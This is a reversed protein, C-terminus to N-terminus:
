VLGEEEEEVQLTYDELAYGKENKTFTIWLKSGIECDMLSKHMTQSFTTMEVAVEGIKLAVVWFTKGNGSRETINEFIAIRNERTKTQRGTAPITLLKEEKPAPSEPEIERRKPINPTELPTFPEIPASRLRSPAPTVNRPENEQGELEDATIIGGMEEPFAKRLAGAEACKALQGRKRKRWMSNLDGDKTVGCAEDFFETHLCAMRQGHIMRYVTVTCFEPALHTEEGIKIPIIEGFVPADQGAYEGTRHATIRAEAISPM